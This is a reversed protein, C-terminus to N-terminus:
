ALWWMLLMLWTKIQTCCQFIRLPRLILSSYATHQDWNHQLKCSWWEMGGNWDVTGTWHNYVLGMLLGDSWLKARYGPWGMNNLATCRQFVHFPRPLLSGCDVQQVCWTGAAEDTYPQMQLVLTVVYKYFILISCLWCTCLNAYVTQPVPLWLKYM